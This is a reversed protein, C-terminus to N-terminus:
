SVARTLWSKALNHKEPIYSQQQGCIVTHQIKKKGEKKKKKKKKVPFFALNGM